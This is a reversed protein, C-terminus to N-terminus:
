TSVSSTLNMQTVYLCMYIDRLSVCTFKASFGRFAEFNIILMLVMGGGGGLFHGIILMLAM